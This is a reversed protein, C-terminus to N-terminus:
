GGSKEGCPGGVMDVSTPISGKTLNMHIRHHRSALTNWRVVRGQTINTVPTIWGNTTM